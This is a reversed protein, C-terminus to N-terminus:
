PSPSSGGPYVGTTLVHFEEVLDDARLIVQVEDGVKTEDYMRADWITEDSSLGALGKTTQVIVFPHM